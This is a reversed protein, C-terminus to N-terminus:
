KALHLALGPPVKPSLQGVEWKPTNEIREKRLTYVFTKSERNKADHTAVRCEIEDWADMDSARLAGSSPTLHTRQDHFQANSISFAFCWTLMAFTTTYLERIM